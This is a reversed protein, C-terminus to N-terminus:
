GAGHMHACSPGAGIGTRAQVQPETTLLWLARHSHQESLTCTPTSQPATLQSSLWACTILQWSPLLAMPTAPHLCSAEAQLMCSEVTGVGHPPDPTPLPASPPPTRVRSRGWKNPLLKRVGPGFQVFLPDRFLGRRARDLGRTGGTFRGKGSVLNLPSATPRTLTAM